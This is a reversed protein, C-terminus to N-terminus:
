KSARRAPKLAAEIAAKLGEPSKDRVRKGNIFVTPTSDVGVLGGDQVDRNVNSSYKDSDLAQDFKARDLGVQTAYDKLNEAELAMQNKFLLGAYQWYKGQARAAEAAVAAKFAHAHQPLPFDRVVLKVKDGYEKVLEELVPATRGCSPCEYDTFEVITVPANEAGTWPQDDIAIKLVPPDPVKLFMQMKASKRLQESYVTSAEIEIQEQLYDVIQGRAQYLPQALRAKNEEYSKQIEEDTVKRMKATVEFEFLAQPTTGKKNAEQELLINNISTDLQKKRLDYIQEQISFAVPELSDEVDGSTIRQLNVTALLRARDAANEPPTVKEVLVRVRGAGLRQALKRTEESLRQDRIYGVISARVETFDGQIRSRNQEYFAQVEAETPDKVKGALEGEILKQPTTGRRKAEAEFLKTGILSELQRQRADVLQNQLEQVKDKIPDFVDSVAVKVGNVFALVGPPASAECGCDEQQKEVPQKEAPKTPKAPVSRKRARPASAAQLVAASAQSPPVTPGLMAGVLLLLSVRKM